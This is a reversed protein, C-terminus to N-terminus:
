PLMCFRLAGASASYRLPVNTVNTVNAISGARKALAVFTVLTGVM